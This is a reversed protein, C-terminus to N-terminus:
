PPPPESRRPRADRLLEANRERLARAREDISPERRRRHAPAPAPKSRPVGIMTKAGIAAIRDACSAPFGTDLVSQDTLRVVVTSVFRGPTQVHEIDAWPTFKLAAPPRIGGRGVTARRIRRFQWWMVIAWPVPVLLSAFSGTIVAATVLILWVATLAALRIRSTRRRGQSLRMRLCDGDDVVYGDM